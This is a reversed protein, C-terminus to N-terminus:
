HLIPAGTDDWVNDVWVNGPSAPDWAAVPGYRGGKPSVARSFRNHRVAIQQQGSGSGAYFEYNGGALLNNEITVGTLTNGDAFGIAAEGPVNSSIANHEIAITSRRGGAGVGTDVAHLYSDNVTSRSGGISIATDVNHFDCRAVTLGDSEQSVGIHVGGGAIESDEIVLDTAGPSQRIVWYVSRSPAVRTNRITVNSAQVIISGTVLMGDVVTGATNVVLDGAHTRLAKGAPVGTSRADPWPKATVAPTTGTGAPTPARSPSTSPSATPPQSASPPASSASASPHGFGSAPAAAPRTLAHILIPVAGVLVAVAVASAAVALGTRRPAQPRRDRHSPPIYVPAPEQALTL